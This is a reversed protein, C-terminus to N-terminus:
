RAGGGNGSDDGGTGESTKAYRKEAETVDSKTNISLPMKDMIVAGIKYGAEIWPLQELGEARSLKTSVLQSIDRLINTPFAYMGCHGYAGAMLIRSFWFCRFLYDEYAEAETGVVKVCNPDDAEKKNMPAALTVIHSLNHEHCMKILRKVDEPRVFSEDCQWNVVVDFVIESAREITSQADACRHTGTAVDATVVCPVEHSDCFQIIKDDSTAVFIYDVGTELARHYTRLLRSSGVIYMRPM